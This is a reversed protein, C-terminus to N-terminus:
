PNQHGDIPGRSPHALVKSSAAGLFRSLLGKPTSFEKVLCGSQALRWAFAHRWPSALRDESPVGSSRSVAVATVLDTIAYPNASLVDVRPPRAVVDPIHDAPRVALLGM